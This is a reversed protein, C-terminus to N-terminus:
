PFKVDDQGVKRLRLEQLTAVKRAARRSESEQFAAFLLM